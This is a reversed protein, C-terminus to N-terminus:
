AISDLTGLAIPGNPNTSVAISRCFDNTSPCMAASVSGIRVPATSGLSEFM